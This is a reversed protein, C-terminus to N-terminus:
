YYYYSYSYNLQQTVKCFKLATGLLILPQRLFGNLNVTCSKIEAFCVSSFEKFYVNGDTTVEICDGVLRSIYMYHLVSCTWAVVTATSFHIVYDSHTNKAKPIWCAIRM